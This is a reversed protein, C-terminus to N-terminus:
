ENGGVKGFNALRDLSRELLSKERPLVDPPNVELGESTEAKVEPKRRRRARLYRPELNVCGVPNKWRNRRRIWWRKGRKGGHNSIPM